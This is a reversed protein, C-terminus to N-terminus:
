PELSSGAQVSLTGNLVLNGDITGCIAVSQGRDITIAGAAAGGATGIELSANDDVAITGYNLGYSGAFGNAILGGFQVTSANTALLFGGALTATGSVKLTSTGGVVLSSGVGMNLSVATLNAGGDLDLDTAAGKVGSAPLLTLSGGVAVTGWLLVENAISLQATAGTGAINTFNDGIGGTISVTSAAGPAAIVPSGVTTDYWNSATEWLGGYQNSWTFSDTDAVVSLSVPKITTRIM